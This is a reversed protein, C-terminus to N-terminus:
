VDRLLAFLVFLFYKLSFCFVCLIRFFSFRFWCTAWSDCLSRAVGAELWNFDQWNSCLHVFFWMQSSPNGKCTTYCYIASLNKPNNVFWAHSLRVSPRVSLIVVGLVASAYSRRAAFVMEEVRGIPASYLHRRHIHIHIMPYVVCCLVTRIIKGRIRWVIM